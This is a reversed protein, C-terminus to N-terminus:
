IKFFLFLFICIFWNCDIDVMMIMVMVVSVIIEFQWVFFCVFWVSVVIFFRIVELLILFLVVMLSVKLGFLIFEKRLGLSFNCFFYFFCVFMMILVWIMGCCVVRILRFFLGLMLRVMVCLLLSGLRSFWCRILFM